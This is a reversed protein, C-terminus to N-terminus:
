LEIRNMNETKRDRCSFWFIQRKKALDHLLTLANEEREEDYQMFSDDLFLPMSEDALVLDAIALRVAFFAQDITGGSFSKLPRHEGRGMTPTYKKDLLLKEDERGTLTALYQSAKENIRPTFDRSLEAFVAELTEAALQLAALTEEAESLEEEKCMRASLLVDATKGSNQRGQLVGTLTAAKQIKESLLQKIDTERKEAEEECFDQPFVGSFNELKKALLRVEEEAAQVQASLLACKESLATIKEDLALKEARKETYEKLTSCGFVSLAQRRNEEKKEITDLKKIIEEKTKRQKLSFGTFLASLLLWTCGLAYQRFLLSIAAFAFLSIAGGLFVKQKKRFAKVSLTLPQPNEIAEYAADGIENAFSAYEAQKERLSLLRKEAEEKGESLAVVRKQAEKQRALIKWAKASLLQKSAEEQQMQLAHIEEGLKKEELAYEAYQNKEAQAEEIQANLATIEKKLENILGGDGRQHKYVRISDKLLDMADEYGTDADGSGALNILKDTLEDDGGEPDIGMQRLFVTKLFANEGVGIEAALDVSCAEGTHADLVRFEDQAPTRGSSRSIIVKKGNSLTVTMEGSLKGGDWPMYRKRDGDAGRGSFGYLMAKIFAMVTSKGAENKGYIYNIGDEFSITKDKFKGYSSLHLTHIKM